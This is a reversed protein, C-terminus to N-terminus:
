RKRLKRSFVALGIFGSGFLLLMSPESIPALQALIEIHVLGGEANAVSSLIPLILLASVGVIVTKRLM